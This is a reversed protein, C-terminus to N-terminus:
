TLRGNITDTVMGSANNYNGTTDTFTWTDSYTGANTHTTGSLDLGSLTEGNVGTATGTATHANRDYTVTYPNVVITADAKSVAQTLSDSSGTFSDSAVYTATITHSGAALASTTVTATGSRDLSATGIQTGDAVFAVTGTPTGSGSTPSVTATYTVPQGYVSPHASSSLATTTTTSINSITDTVMGSANNYNGTTDTFTWTDSYTGANTHTTGSLDLGSLTEGNVGTATGTATHANRDYTVTYPNVVITADAKSVAQTLSDSSGTFSDSAVYTATITHSGAALASTTVTATGSRDLSATGIQTGDAVFAVTGTPTGSGSTPSVTATYTVPQGYVSPHASSSLATTTMTTTTHTYSFQDATTAASTGAPTTVTIHVTGTGPPSTATIQTGSDVTFKTAAASGFSVGTDAASATFGSGTITM